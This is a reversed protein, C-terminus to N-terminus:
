SVVGLTPRAAGVLAYPSALPPLGPGSVRSAGPVDLHDNDGVGGLLETFQFQVESSESSQREGSEGEELRAREGGIRRLASALRQGSSWWGPLDDRKITENEVPTCGRVYIPGISKENEMVIHCM